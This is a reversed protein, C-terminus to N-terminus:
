GGPLGAAELGVKWDDYTDLLVIQSNRVVFVTAFDRAVEVHSSMGAGRLVGLAVVCEGLERYDEVEIRLDTWAEDLQEFYRETTGQRWHDPMGARTSLTTIEAEPHLLRDVAESNRANYADFFAKVVEVNELSMARGTDRRCPLTALVRTRHGTSHQRRDSEDNDEHGHEACGPRRQADGSREINVVADPDDNQKENEGDYRHPDQVLEHLHDLRRPCLFRTRDSKVSGDPACLIM